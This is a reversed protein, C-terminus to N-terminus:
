PFCPVFTSTTTASRVLGSSRARISFSTAASLRTAMSTLLAPLAFNAGIDAVDISSAADIIASLM